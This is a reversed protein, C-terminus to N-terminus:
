FGGSDLTHVTEWDSWIEIEEPIDLESSVDAPIYVIERCRVQLQKKWPRIEAFDHLLGDSHNFSETIVRFDKAVGRKLLTIPASVETKRKNKLSEQRVSCPWSRGCVCFDRDNQNIVHTTGYNKDTKM